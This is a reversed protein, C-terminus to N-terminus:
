WADKSWDSKLKLAALALFVPNWIAFFSNIEASCGVAGAINPIIGCYGEFGSFGNFVLLFFSMAVVDLSVLHAPKPALFVAFLGLIFAGAFLAAFFWLNLRSLILMRSYLPANREEQDRKQFTSSPDHVLRGGEYKFETTVTVDAQSYVPPQFALRLQFLFIALCAPM